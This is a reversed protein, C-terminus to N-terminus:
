CRIASVAVVSISRSSKPMVNLAGRSPPPNKMPLVTLISISMSAIRWGEHNRAKVAPSSQETTSSRELSAGPGASWPPIRWGDSGPSRPGRAPLSRQGSWMSTLFGGLWWHIQGRGPGSM